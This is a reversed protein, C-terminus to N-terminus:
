NSTQNDSIQTGDHEATLNDAKKDDYFVAMIDDANKGEIKVVDFSEFKTFEM